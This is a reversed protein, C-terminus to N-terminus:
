AICGQLLNTVALKYKIGEVNKGLEWWGEWLSVMLKKHTHRHTQKQKNKM